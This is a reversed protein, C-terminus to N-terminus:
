VVCIFTVLGAERILRAGAMVSFIFSCFPLFLILSIVLELLINIINVGPRQQREANLKRLQLCNTLLKIVFPDKVLM